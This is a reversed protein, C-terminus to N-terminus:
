KGYSGLQQRKKVSFHPLPFLVNIGKDLLGFHRELISKRHQWALVLVHDPNDEYLRSTPHVSLHYNPSVTGHKLENDDVLYELYQALEFHHLLTTTSHSAGFGVIKEGKARCATLYDHLEGKIDDLQQAFRRYIEPDRIGSLYEEDIIRKVSSSVPKSGNKIQGVVRISGGKPETKVVDILELGCRIFVKKLVDVTFYSFHEHYIYDFMNMKMQEPHYGTQVIFIGDPAILNAVSITLGIVDDVNAYMYNATIVQVLGHEERIRAAVETTFFDNITTLGNANAIAATQSAPEVGLVKMGLRKFSALMSGDNSGLDVIKSGPQLHFQEVINKAYQDYHDRLGSTVGSVYMYDTYSARPDVVHQLFVYGCDECLALELPFVPQAVPKKLFQDELPTDKLKVVMTIRDSSCVRCTTDYRVIENM